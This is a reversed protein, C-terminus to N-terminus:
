QWLRFTHETAIRLLNAAHSAAPLTASMKICSRPQRRRHNALSRAVAKMYQIRNDDRDQRHQQISM